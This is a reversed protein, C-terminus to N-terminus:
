PKERLQARLPEWFTEDERIDELRREASWMRIYTKLMWEEVKEADPAAPLSSTDLLDRLEAELEGAKTLCNQLDVEGRRVALLHEAEPVPYTMKGTTLLEVGQIGLRLMHCAFKTDFGHQEILGRRPQGHGGNGREGLLRQRQAQLYGLFAKGAKRSVIAPALERLQSGRADFQILSATPAFLLTLVTPNGSLALRMWKRLGYITLDLDGAESPADHNGTRAAASRYILQEFPAS